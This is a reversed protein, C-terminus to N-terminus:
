EFVEEPLSERLGNKTGFCRKRNYYYLSSKACNTCPVILKNGRFIGYHHCNLCLDKAVFYWKRRTVKKPTGRVMKISSEIEPKEIIELFHQHCETPLNQLCKEKDFKWQIYNNRYIIASLQEPSLEQIGNQTGFCRKGNYYWGSDAVCNTCPVILKNGEFIGYRSCNHCLDKAVLYWNKTVKKTTLVM